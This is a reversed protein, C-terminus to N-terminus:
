PPFNEQEQMWPYPELADLRDAIETLFDELTREPQGTAHRLTRINEFLDVVVAELLLPGFRAFLEDRTAMIAVM